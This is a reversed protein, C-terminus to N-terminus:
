RRRRVDGVRLTLKIQDFYEALPISWKRSAGTIEKWEGPTIEGRDDLHDELRSQLAAIAAAHAYLDPKIKLLVGSALLRAHADKVAAVALGSEGPVDKVRPPTHGWELYAAALAKEGASMPQAAAERVGVRRLRDGDAAIRERAVLDDILADYLPSPLSSPLRGRLEGRGVGELESAAVVQDTIQKELRAAVEAGLLWAGGSADARFLEGREVLRDVAEGLAPPPEGLRKILDDFSVGAHASSAVELAVREDGAARAMAALMAQNDAASRRSKPAQVRIIEGGGLTTGYHKQAAFGRAIFRDGPLAALPTGIDLRLQVLAEVGPELEDADVLVLTALQQATGHHLLIRTRRGLRARSTSLYRFRADILHSAVVADPRTLFDGRALNERAVGALNLACRMGARGIETPGGYVEIGRVKAGVERPHAVVADGTAVSGGLITGTVVTGFGKITFVRDIPMRFLGDDPRAPLEGTIALLADRLEDLGTGTKSSVGIIPAGELFTGALAGAVDERVLELWEPEVLDSKNLAVVGRRVGLLECVDLHERTQPMIGEDAAIVLMVLDLGGAGAVMSKIFREHGPVDVLGFRRDGLELHAFGLETTIGREKEEKLRDTDIGTLAKVLATKGHDIHGATGLVIPYTQM